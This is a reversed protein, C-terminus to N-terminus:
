TTQDMFFKLSTGLLIFNVIIDVGISVIILYMVLEPYFNAVIRGPDSLVWSPLLGIIYPILVIGISIFPHAVFVKFGRKLASGFSVGGAMISPILFICVSYLIVTIGRSMLQALMQRRPADQLSYGLVDEIFASFYRNIFYLVALVVLWTLTLKFYRRFAHSASVLFSPKEGRYIAILLDIVIAFLLAETLLNVILGALGYFYPMLAFHSPYHVFLPAYEANVLRTWTGILSGTIPSFIYYHMLVLILALGAHILLPVWLRAKGMLRFTQGYLYWFESMRVRQAM